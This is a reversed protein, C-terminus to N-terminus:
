FLHKIYDIPLKHFFSFLRLSNKQIDIIYLYINQHDDFTPALKKYNCLTNQFSLWLERRMVHIRPRLYFMQDLQHLYKWDIKKDFHVVYNKRILDYIIVGDCYVIEIHWINKIYEVNLKMQAFLGKFWFKLELFYYESLIPM